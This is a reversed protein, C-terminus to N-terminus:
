LELYRREFGRLNTQPDRPHIILNGIYKISQVNMCYYYLVGVGYVM